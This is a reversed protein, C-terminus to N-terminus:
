VTQLTGCLVFSRRKGDAATGTEARSRKGTRVWCGTVTFPKPADRFASMLNKRNLTFRCVPPASVAQPPISSIM